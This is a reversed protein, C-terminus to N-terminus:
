QKQLRWSCGSTNLFSLKMKKTRNFNLLTRPQSRLSLSATKRREPGEDHAQSLFRVLSSFVRLDRQSAGAGREAFFFLMIEPSQACQMSPSLLASVSILGFTQFPLTLNLFRLMPLPYDSGNVLRHHLHTKSLLTSCYRSCFFM